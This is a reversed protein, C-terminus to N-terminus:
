SGSPPGTRGGCLSTSFTQVPTCEPKSSWPHGTASGQAFFNTKLPGTLVDSVIRALLILGLMIRPSLQFEEFKCEVIGTLVQVLDTRRPRENRSKILQTHNQGKQTGHAHM